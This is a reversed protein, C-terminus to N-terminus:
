REFLENLEEDSLKIDYDSLVRKFQSKNVTGKRDVDVELFAHHLDAVGERFKRKLWDEADLDKRDITVEPSSPSKRPSVSGNSKRSGRTNPRPVSDMSMGLKHLIKESSIVGINETDFKAWLKEFEDDEM